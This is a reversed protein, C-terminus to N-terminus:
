WPDSELWLLYAIPYSTNDPPGRMEERKVLLMAVLPFVVLGSWYLWHPLVFDLSPM